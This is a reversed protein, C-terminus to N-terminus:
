PVTITTSGTINDFTVKLTVVGSAVASVVGTTNVTAIAPDSSQWTSTTTIDQTTDDNFIAVAAFQTQGGVPPASGTVSIVLLNSPSM